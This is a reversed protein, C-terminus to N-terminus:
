LDKNEKTESKRKRLEAYKIRLQSITAQAIKLKHLLEKNQKSMDAAAKFAQKSDKWTAISQMLVHIDEKDVYELERMGFHYLLGELLDEATYFMYQRKGVEVAYGNPLQCVDLHIKPFKKAM